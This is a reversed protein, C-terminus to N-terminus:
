SELFENVSCFLVDAMKVVTLFSPISQGITYRSVIARSVGIENALEEQTINEEKMLRKLNKSFIKLLEKESM